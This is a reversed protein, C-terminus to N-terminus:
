KNQKYQIIKALVVGLINEAYELLFNSYSIMQSRQRTYRNRRPADFAIDLEHIIQNRIDFIPKLDQSDLKLDDSTLGLANAARIIEQASQLSGSTLFDIFEIVVQEKQSEAILVRALFDRVRSSGLENGDGKLQRTTFKELEAKVKDDFRALLPLADRILQKTMADLGSATMVLMARLLDQEEDTTAGKTGGSRQQRIIDFAKLIAHASDHTHKLILSSREAELPIKSSFKFKLKRIEGKFCKKNQMIM